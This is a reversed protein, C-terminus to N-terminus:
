KMISTIGSLYIVERDSFRKRAARYIVDLLAEPAPHEYCIDDIQHILNEIYATNRIDNESPDSLHMLRKLERELMPKIEEKNQVNFVLVNVTETGNASKGHITDIWKFDKGALEPLPLLLTSQFHYTEM